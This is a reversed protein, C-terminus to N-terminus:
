IIFYYVEKNSLNESIIKEIKSHFVPNNITEKTSQIFDISFVSLKDNLLENEKSKEDLANITKSLEKKLYDINNEKIEKLLEEIITKKENIENKLNDIENKAKLIEFIENKSVFNLIYNLLERTM